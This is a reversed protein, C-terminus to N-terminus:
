WGQSATHIKGESGKGVNSRKMHGQNGGVGLGCRAQDDALILDDAM